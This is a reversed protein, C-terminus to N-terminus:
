SLGSIILSETRLFVVSVFKSLNSNKQIITIPIHANKLGNVWTRPYKGKTPPNRLPVAAIIMNKAAMMTLMGRKKIVNEKPQILYWGFTPPAIMAADTNAKTSIDVM